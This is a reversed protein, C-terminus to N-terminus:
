PAGGHSSNIFKAVNDHLAKASEENAYVMHGSPYFAYSINQQLKQTIFLHQMQFEAAFYATAFDYYGGNLMVKMNPNQSMAMALDPMVNMGLPFAQGVGPLVHSTDWKGNVEYSIPIYTQDTAGYKLVNRMYDNLTSVYASSIAQSQPDYENSEGLADTTPGSFRGDLRGALEGSDRLLEHTFQGGSVRLNAMMWYNASVGTYGQLREAIQQKVAPDLTSGANLATLYDTLAFHEVDRLFPELKPPKNPLKNHYWATAAQTPLATAFAIDIGPNFIDLDPSFLFNPLASLLVIGNLDISDNQLDLAVVPARITGYSEGFLYKPSNWRAFKNLFQEIFGTFAKGDQDVGYFDKDTGKGVVRSFGTGIADVFVMDTVDLLSDENNILQYPAPPTHADENTRVRQPGFAGMHLWITSSGPGGNFFFTIPRSAPSTVGDKMYAVYFMSATPEGKANKLILTGANAKYSIRQGNISMSGSTTVLQPTTNADETKSAANEASGKAESEDVAM